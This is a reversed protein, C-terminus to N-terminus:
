CLKNCGLEVISQHTVRITEKVGRHRLKRIQVIPIFLNSRVPDDHTNFLLMCPPTLITGPVLSCSLSLGEKGGGMRYNRRGEEM